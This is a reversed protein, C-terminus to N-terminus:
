RADGAAVMKTDQHTPPKIGSGLCAKCTRAVTEFGCPYFTSQVEQVKLGCGGCFSCKSPDAWPLPKRAM